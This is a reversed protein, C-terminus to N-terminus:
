VIQHLIAPQVTLLRLLVYNAYWHVLQYRMIVQTQIASMAFYELIVLTAHHALLLIQAHMADLLLLVVFIVPVAQMIILLFVHLAHILPFLLLHLASLALPEM